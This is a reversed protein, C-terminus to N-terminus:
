RIVTFRRTSTNEGATLRYVYIGSSVKRGNQDCGNWKVTHNGAGLMGNVLTKVRQGLVNYIELSASAGQALGFRFEASNKVPNPSTPMLYFSYSVAGPQGEVGTPTASAENSWASFTDAHSAWPYTSRVVYYYTSDNVVSNDDYSLNTTGNLFAYPGGATTSRFIQYEGINKASALAGVAPAASLSKSKPLKQDTDKLVTLQDLKGLDSGALAKKSYTSYSVVARSMWHRQRLYWTGGQKVLSRYPAQNQDDTIGYPLGATKFEYGVHFDGAPYINLSSVDVVTWSPYAVPYIKFPAVLETAEDPVGGDDAYIHVTLSDLSPQEYWMSYLQEIKCGQHEPTMRTTTISGAAWSSIYWPNSNDYYLTAVPATWSLPVSGDQGDTAGLGSPAYPYLVTFTMDGLGPFSPYNTESGADDVAWINYSVITAPAIPGTITFEFTDTAGIQTGGVSLWTINNYTYYLSEAAVGVKALDYIRAKVIFLGTSDFTNVPQSVMEIVPAQNDLTTFTIFTDPLVAISNDSTDTGATVIVSYTTSYNYPTGPTLTMTDGTASWSLSYSDTPIAYGMISTTDMPESFVVTVPQNLAVGTAGDAPFTSVIYPATVDTVIAKFDLTGSAATNLSSDRAVVWYNVDVTDSPTPVQSPIEALFTDASVFTMDMSDTAGGDVQYLLKVSMLAQNDTVVAKVPYPGYTKTTDDALTDVYSIVPDEGEIHKLDWDTLKAYIDYGKMRRNDDWNFLIRQDTCAVRKAGWFYRNSMTTGNVVVNGGEPIGDVYKQAMVQALDGNSPDNRYDEWAIVMNHGDPSLSVSPYYHYTVGQADDNVLFNGGVTDGNAHYMQAYIDSYSGDYRYDYWTIVFGSDAMSVSPEYQYNGGDDVLFNGGVTDGNTKFLQAYIDANGNRYDYWTIVFGSDNSAITPQYQESSGDDVRFNGGITDGNTKYLQAYIDANGNRYDYWTIMFGSDSAAVNPNYGSSGGDEVLFNGGVATGASDFLQAYIDGNWSFDYGYWTVVFGGGPLFAARPDYGYRRVASLTDNIIFNAGVPNGSADYLQGYQDVLNWTGNDNRLDYWVAVSRGSTDMAVSADWQDTTGTDNNAMFNAGLASGAADYRQCFIDYNGSPNYRNDYWVVAFGSDNAAVSPDYCYISTTDNVIFNGGLALGAPDYRQAYTNWYSGSRYDYWTIVFGSDNAAVNSAGWTYQDYSTGDDNVLFNGGVSDGNPNYLQAYIDANGSRYDYWAIMYGSENAAVSPCWPNDSGGDNVLFNGGLTDGNTNYRQAYINWSGGTRYDDWTIIFGSDSLAVSSYYQDSGSVDDNVLFNSGLAAGSADYRQAYIDANGNRYDYWAIVFGSDNAAVSPYYQDFGSADDSVLFDGGIPTGAADFRRAYIDYDNGNRYDYWTVVFSNGCAAVSPEEAETGTFDNILFDEGVPSGSADFIRGFIQYDDSNREDYWVVIMEGTSLLAAKPDYQYGAYYGIGQTDDNVLYEDKILGKIEPRPQAKGAKSPKTKVLKSIDPRGPMQPRSPSRDAAATAYASAKAPGPRGPQQKLQAPQQKQTQPQKHRLHPPLPRGDAGLEPKAWALGATLVLVLAFMVRKVM